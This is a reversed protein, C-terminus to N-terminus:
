PAWTEGDDHSYAISHSQQGPKGPHEHTNASTFFAVLPGEDGVGLGSTNTRDWVASGSFAMEQETAPIALGKREWQLLDKSVAHGWGINGWTRGTPNNQFFLHYQGKHFLLGNPDNMWTSEPTFHVSPRYEPTSHM